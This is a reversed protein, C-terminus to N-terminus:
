SEDCSLHKWVLRDHQHWLWGSICPATVAYTKPFHTVVFTSDDAHIKQAEHALDVRKKHDTEEILADVVADFRDSKYDNVNSSGAQHASLYFAYGPALVFANALHPFFPLDRTGKRRRSNMEAKPIRKLSLNVGVKGLADKAQIALPEEWWWNDSYEMQIDLGNGYGADSLLARSKDLDTGANHSATHFEGFAPALISDAREGLGRFVAVGIADYDMAHIIAKRVRIDDFPPFNANMRLTAMGTGPVSDVKVNPDNKLDVLQQIPMGDAWHIAGSKVLAARSAASPIERFVVRNFFPEDSFYNKNLTFVAGEGPRVSEVHYPGFGATNKALWKTAWKDDDTAFEKVHKSDVLAPFVTTLIRPFIANPSALTFTVEDDATAEVSSVRGVTRMFNGTKKRDAAMAWSYAVDHASLENGFASKVGPRIKFAIVRGGDRVDWSTAMHPEVNGSDIVDRGTSDTVITHKTLNEYVNVTSELMGAQWNDSDFSAPTASYAFIFTRDAAQTATSLMVAGAGIAIATALPRLRQAQRM